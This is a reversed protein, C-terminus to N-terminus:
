VAYGTGRKTMGDRNRTPGSRDGPDRDVTAPLGLGIM